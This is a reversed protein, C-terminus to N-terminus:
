NLIGMGEKGMGEKGMTTLRAISAPTRGSLPQVSNQIKYMSQCHLQLYKLKGRGNIKNKSM